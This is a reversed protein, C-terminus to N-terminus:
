EVARRREGEVRDGQGERGQREEEAKRRMNEKEGGARVTYRYNNREIM